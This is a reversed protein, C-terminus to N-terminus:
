LATGDKLSLFSVDRVHLGLMSLHAWMAIYNEQGSLREQIVLFLLVRLLDGAVHAFESEGILLTEAHVNRLMCRFRAGDTLPHEFSEFIEFLMKDVYVRLVVHEPFVDTAKTEMHEARRGGQRSMGLLARHRRSDAHVAPFGAPREFVDKRVDLGFM